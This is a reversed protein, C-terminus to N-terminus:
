TNVLRIHVGGVDWITTVPAGLAPIAPWSPSFREVLADIQRDALAEGGSEERLYLWIAELDREAAEALIYM